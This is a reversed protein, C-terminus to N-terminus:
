FSLALVALAAAYALASAGALRARLSRAFVWELLDRARYPLAGFYLAAVIALYVGVVMLLRGPRDYHMYAASLFEQAGLLTLVAAGRVALFDRLHFFSGVAAGGFGLLLWNRYNGFDAEGLHAVKWLFWCSGAGMLVVAWFFSRLGRQLWAETPQGGWLFAAGALFAFAAWLMSAMQLSMPFRAHRAMPEAIAIFNTKGNSM